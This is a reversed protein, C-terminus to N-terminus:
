QRQQESLLGRHCMQRRMDAVLGRAVILSERVELQAAFADSDFLKRVRQRQCRVRRQRLCRVRQQHRRSRGRDVRDIANPLAAPIRWFEELGDGPGSFDSATPAQECDAITM